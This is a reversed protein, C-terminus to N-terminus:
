LAPNNGITAINLNIMPAYSRMPPSQMTGRVWYVDREDDPPFKTPGNKSRKAFYPRYLSTNTNLRDLNGYKFLHSEKGFEEYNASIFDLYPDVKDHLVANNIGIYETRCLKFNNRATAEFMPVLVYLWELNNTEAHTTVFTALTM